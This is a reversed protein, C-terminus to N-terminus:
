RREITAGPSAGLLESVLDVIVGAGRHEPDLSPDYVTLQLGLASPHRVIPGVVAQLEDASLGDPLPSDVAPM